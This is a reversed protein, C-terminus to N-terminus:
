VAARKDWRGEFIPKLVGQAISELRALAPRGVEANLLINVRLCNEKIWNGLRDPHVLAVQEKFAAPLAPHQFSSFHAYTLLSWSLSSLSRGAGYHQSVWRANSNPGARGVKLWANGFQFNYVGQWGRPLTVPHHPVGLSVVQIHAKAVPLREAAAWEQFQAVIRDFDTM